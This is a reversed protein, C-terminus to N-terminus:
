KKVARFCKRCVVDKKSDMKDLVLQFVDSKHLDEYSDTFLNGVKNELSYDQCCLYVDGNPLMVNQYERNDKCRIPGDIYRHKICDSNGARSVMKQKNEGDNKSVTIIEYEIEHKDLLRINEDVVDAYLINPIRHVVFPNIEMKKLLFIDLEIMGVTTTYLGVKYGRDYVAKIMNICDFNLFPECFGSFHIKVDKPIKKLIHLQLDLIDLQKSAGDPYNKLLKDQPCYFCNCMCGIKTTIELCKKM